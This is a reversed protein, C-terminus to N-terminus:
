VVTDPLTTLQTPTQQRLTTMAAAIRAQIATVYIAAAAVPDATLIDLPGVGAGQPTVSFIRVKRTPLESVLSAWVEPSGTSLKIPSPLAGNSFVGGLNILPEGYASMRARDDADTLDGVMQISFQLTIIGNIHNVLPHIRM